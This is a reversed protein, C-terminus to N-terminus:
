DQTATEGRLIRLAEALQNDREPDPDLPLRDGDYELVVDPTVGTGQISRGSGDYYSATTLQMGAGDSPFTIQTQVIGKGFTTTGLVTGRGFSQVSAALIESASASNGNVLVVLPIDYCEEDSYFDQRAGSREQIYVITGKPLILDAMAVVQKLLGGPNNRLDIVMGKAGKEKFDELAESFRTSADGTFQTVSIYGIDGDLIQWSAYSINVASRTVRVELSEQGRRVTLLLTTDDEGRMRAVAEAYSGDMDLAIDAGDIATIRDGVMLGAAEAPTDPYVRLVEISSDELQNILIGIGHYAGQENENSRQMEEPTSYFTFPDNVAGTMGRIAGLLLADEDLEQYYDSMLRGRVEELRSYREIADYQAQTVWRAGGTRGAAILTLTSSLIAILIGAWALTLIRMTKKSM